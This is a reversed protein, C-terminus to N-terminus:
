PATLDRIVMDGATSECVIRVSSGSPVRFGPSEAADLDVYLRGHDDANRVVGAHTGLWYIKAPRGALCHSRIKQVGHEIPFSTATSPVTLRADSAFDGAVQRGASIAASFNLLFGGIADATVSRRSLQTGGPRALLRFTGHQGPDMTGLLAGGIVVEMYPVSQYLTYSHGVHSTWTVKLADLGRLDAASSTDTRYHGAHDSAVTRTLIRTCPATPTCHYARITVHSDHRAIGKVVDTVRNAQISLAPITFRIQDIDVASIGVLTMGPAVHGTAFCAHIHHQSNPVVGLVTDVLVDSEDRLEIDLTRNSIGSVCTGPSARFTVMWTAASAAMSMTGVALMSLGIAALASRWRRPRM